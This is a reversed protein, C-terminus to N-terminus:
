KPNTDAIIGSVRDFIFNRVEDMKPLVADTLRTKLTWEGSAQFVGFSLLDKRLRAAQEDDIPLDKFYFQFDNKPYGYLVSGLKGDKLLVRISFGVQGFYITWGKEEASVFLAEFFRAAGPNCNQLFSARDARPRYDKRGAKAERALETAGIVRPVVARQGQGEFQKIELGLVEVEKMKENMFEILRKLEPPIQDAVFLLRVNGSTLNSEVQQWYRDVDLEPGEGLLLSVLQDLSKGSKTATEAAAQRLKDISWYKTGNAAYDLMQAVVERRARTDSARKCEVFTPIADQDLFLHDLSWRDSESDDGPVAMERAVLLWRRPIEPNIQDGALLDSYQELLVQLLDESSFASEVMSTLSNDIPSILFIKGRTVADVEMVTTKAWLKSM